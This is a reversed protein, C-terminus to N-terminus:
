EPDSRCIPDTYFKEKKKARLSALKQSEQLKSEVQIMSDYTNKTRLKLFVSYIEQDLNIYAERNNDLLKNYRELKKKRSRWRKKSGIESSTHM